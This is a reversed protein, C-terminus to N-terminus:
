LRRPNDPSRRRQGSHPWSLGTPSIVIGAASIELCSRIISVAGAVHTPVITIPPGNKKNPHAKNAMDTASESLELNKLGNKNTQAKTRVVTGNIRM